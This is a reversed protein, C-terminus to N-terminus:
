YFCFFLNKEKESDYAPHRNLIENISEKKFFKIEPVNNSAGTGLFKGSKWSLIERYEEMNITKYYLDDDNESLAIKESLAITNDNFEWKLFDLMARTNLGYVLAQPYFYDGDDKPYFYIDWKDKWGVAFMLEDDHKDFKQIPGNLSIQGAQTQIHEEYEYNIGSDFAYGYFITLNGYMEDFIDLSNTRALERAKNRLEWYFKADELDNKVINFQYFKKSILTRTLFSYLQEDMGSTPWERAESYSKYWKPPPANSLVRNGYRWSFMNGGVSANLVCNTQGRCIDLSKFDDEGFLDLRYGDESRGNLFSMAELFEVGGRVQFDTLDLTRCDGPDGGFDDKFNLLILVEDFKGGIKEVLPNIGGSTFGYIILVVVLVMLILSILKGMTWDIAGKKLFM